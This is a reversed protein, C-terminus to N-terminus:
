RTTEITAASTTHGLRVLVVPSGESLATEVEKLVTYVVDAPTAM